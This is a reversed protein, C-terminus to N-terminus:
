DVPSCGSEEWVFVREVIFYIRTFSHIVVIFVGFIDTVLIYHRYYFYCLFWMSCIILMFPENIFTDHFLNSVYSFSRFCYSQMFLNSHFMAVM